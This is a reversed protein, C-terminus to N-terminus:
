LKRIDVNVGEEGGKSSYRLFAYSGKSVSSPNIFTAGGVLKSFQKLRSPVLLVRPTYDQSGRDLDLPKSRSVDLNVEHSVDIPPPFVPYFSRQQLMYRCLEAMPDLPEDSGPEVDAQQGQKLFEEKKLHFLTDVTSVAFNVGNISFRCPNALLHVRSHSLLTTDFESQPFSAHESLIDKVSPVVFFSISPKESLIDGIIQAFHNAFLQEPTEDVDGSRIQPHSSDVFPGLLLVTDPSEKSIVQVFNQWPRYQLDADPTFPGSAILMNFSSESDEKPPSPPGNMRPLSLVESVSFWGGGGNRGRLAVIAGPFFGVRTSGHIKLPTNFRLSVRVGSGMMRSSELAISAENLKSTGSTAAIEANAVIRGVVVVDEETASAPDCLEQLNYHLRVIEAMDDIREDLVDSRESLKEYMYRYDRREVKDARSFSIKSSGAVPVPRDVDEEKVGSTFDGNLQRPIRGPGYGSAGSRGSMVGSLRASSGKNTPRSPKAQEQTIYLKLEQLNTEDLRRTGRNLHKVTEWKWFLADPSLDYNQCLKVCEDLLHDCDQPLYERFTKEVKKLLVKPPIISTM